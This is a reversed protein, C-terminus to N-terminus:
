EEGLVRGGTAALAEAEDEGLALDGVARGRVVSVVDARTYPRKVDAVRAQLQGELHVGDRILPQHGLPVPHQDAEIVRLVARVRQRVIDPLAQGLVNAFLEAVSCPEGSTSGRSRRKPSRACPTSTSTMRA